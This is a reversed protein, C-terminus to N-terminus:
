KGEGAGASWAAFAKRAAETLSPLPSRFDVGSEVRMHEGVFAEAEDLADVYGEYEGVLPAPLLLAPACLYTRCVMPMRERPLTCGCTPDHFLCRGGRMYPKWKAGDVEGPLALVAAVFEEEGRLLAAGIDALSYAAGQTCCGVRSESSFVCELCRECYVRAEGYAESGVSGVSDGVFGSPLSVDRRGNLRLTFGEGQLVSTLLHALERARGQSVGAPLPLSVIAFAEDTDPDTQLDLGVRVPKDLESPFGGARVAGAFYREAWWDATLEEGPRLAIAVEVAYQEALDEGGLWRCYPLGVV